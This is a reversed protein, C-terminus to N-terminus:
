QKSSRGSVSSPQDQKSPQGTPPLGGADRHGRGGLIGSTSQLAPPPLLLADLVALMPLPQGSHKCSVFMVLWPVVHVGRASNTMKHACLEKNIVPGFVLQVYKHMQM